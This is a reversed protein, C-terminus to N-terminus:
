GPLDKKQNGKKILADLKTLLEKGDIQPKNEKNKYAFM